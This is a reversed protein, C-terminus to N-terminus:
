NITFRRAQTTKTYHEAVDPLDKKLATTDIRNTTYPTWRVRYDGATLENTNRATMEAKVVDELAEIEADFLERMKRLEQLEHVKSTVENISM